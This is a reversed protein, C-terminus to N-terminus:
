RSDLLNGPISRFVDASAERIRQIVHDSLKLTPLLTVTFEGDMDDKTRFDEDLARKNTGNLLNMVVDKLDIDEELTQGM